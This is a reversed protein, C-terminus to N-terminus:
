WCDIKGIIDQSYIKDCIEEYKLATQIERKERCSIATKKNWAYNILANAALVAGKGQFRLANALSQGRNTGHCAIFDALDNPCDLNLDIQFKM